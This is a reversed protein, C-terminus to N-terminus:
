DRRRERELDALAKSACDDCLGHSVSGQLRLSLPANVFEWSGSPQKTAGCWSCIVVPGSAGTEVSGSDEDAELRRFVARTALPKGEVTRCSISGIVDIRRGERDVFSTEIDRITRGKFVQEMRSMCLEHHDPAIVDFVNMKRAEENTYGLTTRWAENVYLYRGEPDVSQIIEPAHEVLDRFMEMDETATMQPQMQM